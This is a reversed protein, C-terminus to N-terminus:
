CPIGLVWTRAYLTSINESATQWLGIKMQQSCNCKRWNKEKQSTMIIWILTNSMLIETLIHLACFLCYSNSECFSFLINAEQFVTCIETIIGTWFTQHTPLLIRSVMLHSPIYKQSYYSPWANSRWKWCIKKM